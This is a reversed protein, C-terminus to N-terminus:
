QYFQRMMQLYESMPPLGMERRRQDLHAEDAVPYLTLPKTSVFQTGYLQPKGESKLLRDELMALDSAPVDGRAAAARLLPLYAHQSAPDAHQLVLFANNAYEAGAFRLGPWGYRGIIASLRTMNAKDIAEQRAWDGKSLNAPNGRISQDSAGMAKLDDLARIEEADLADSRIILEDGYITVPPLDGMPLSLQAHGIAHLSGDPRDEQKLANFTFTRPGRGPLLVVGAVEKGAALMSITTRRPQPAEAARGPAALPALAALIACHALFKM